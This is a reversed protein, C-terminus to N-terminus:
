VEVDEEYEVGLFYIFIGLEWFGHIFMTLMFWQILDVTEISGGDGVWVVM